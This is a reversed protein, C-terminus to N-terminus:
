TIYTCCNVSSLEQAEDQRIRATPYRQSAIRQHTAPLCVTAAYFTPTRCDVVFQVSSFQALCGPLVNRGRVLADRRSVARAVDGVGVASPNAPQDSRERESARYRCCPRHDIMVQQLQVVQRSIAIKRLNNFSILSKQKERKTQFNVRSEISKSFIEVAMFLSFTVQM